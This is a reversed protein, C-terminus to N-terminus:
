EMITDSLAAIKWIGNVRRELIQRVEPATAFSLLTLAREGKVRLAYMKLTASKEARVSHTEKFLKALVTACTKGRLAPNDGYNEPLTEAILPYLMTCAKAGNEAAAAAYYSRVLSEIEQREAGIAAHGYDLIHADDDNNDGDNDRDRKTAHSSTSGTASGGCAAVGVSLLVTVLLALLGVTLRQRHM